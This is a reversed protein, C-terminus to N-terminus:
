RQGPVQFLTWGTTGSLPAPQSSVRWSPWECRSFGVQTIEGKAMAVTPGTDFDALDDKHHLHKSLHTMDGRRSFFLPQNVVRPLRYRSYLSQLLEDRSPPNRYFRLVRPEELMSILDEDSAPVPTPPPLQTATLQSPEATRSRKGKQSVVTLDDLGQTTLIQLTSRVDGSAAGVAPSRRKGERGSQPTLKRQSDPTGSGKV